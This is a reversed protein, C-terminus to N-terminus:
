GRSGFVRDEIQMKLTEFRLEADRAFTFLEALTPLETPLAALEARGLRIASASRSARDWPRTSVARSASMARSDLAPFVVLSARSIVSVVVEFPVAVVRTSVSEIPGM